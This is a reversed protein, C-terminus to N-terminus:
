AADRDVQRHRVVMSDYAGLDLSLFLRALDPDFQSGACQEIEALVEDRAMAPRYSRNSSMADFSDVVALLRALRPIGTGSRGEPYGGGDWREHHHLVGALAHAMPPIDRLIDYGIVPHRKIEDFEEKTLKGTKRLVAEAVGIKGVDHVLGAIRTREVEEPDLGMAEALMGALLCVRESHGRTYRDKADIASTLARVSGLFLARQEEYTEVNNLFASLFDAAADLLQTEVSTVEPDAGQRNGALLLGIPVQGSMIPEAVIQSGAATALEDRGPDLLATWDDTHMRQLRREILRTFQEEEIPLDGALIRPRLISTITHVPRLQVAVWAFDLLQHLLCVATTVFDEPDTLRSMSRGLRYLLNIQEYADTLQRSFENVIEGPPPADDPRSAAHDLLTRVSEFQGRSYRLLPALMRRAATADVRASDCVALFQESDVFAPGLAMLVTGDAAPPALWCGECLEITSPADTPEVERLASATLARLAPARLWADTVGLGAPPILRGDDGRRWALLHLARCPGTPDAADATPDIQRGASTM